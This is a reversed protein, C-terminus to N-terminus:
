FNLNRLVFNSVFGFNLNGFISVRGVSKSNQNETMKNQKPNQIEHKPIEVDHAGHHLPLGYQSSVAM